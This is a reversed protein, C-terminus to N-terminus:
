KKKIQVVVLERKGKGEIPLPKHWIDGDMLIIRAKDKSPRTDIIHSEEVMGNYNNYFQLHGGEVTNATYCLLTNVDFDVAGQSDQHECLQTEITEGNVVAKHVEILYDKDMEKFENQVAFGNKNLFDSCLTIFDLEFQSHKKSNDGSISNEKGDSREMKWGSGKLEDRCFQFVQSLTAIKHDLDVDIIKFNNTTNSM